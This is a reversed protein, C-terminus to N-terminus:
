FEGGNSFNNRDGEAFDTGKEVSELGYGTESIEFSEENQVKKRNEPSKNKEKNDRM